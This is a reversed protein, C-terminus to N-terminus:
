EEGHKHGDPVDPVPLEALKLLTPFLFEPEVPEIRRKKAVPATPPSMIIDTKLEFFGSSKIDTILKLAAKKDFGKECIATKKAVTIAVVAKKLLIYDVKDPQMAGKLLDAYQDIFFHRDRSLAILADAAGKSTEQLTKFDM